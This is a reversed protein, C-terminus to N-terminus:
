KKEAEAAPEPKVVDPKYKLLINFQSPLPKGDGLFSQYLAAMAGAEVLNIRGGSNKDEDDTGWNKMAVQVAENASHIRMVALASQQALEHSAGVDAVIAMNYANLAKSFKKQAEYAQALCFAVQARQYGPQREKYREEAVALVRDWSKTRVADWMAYLEFQRQLLPRTLARSDYAAAAKNLGELDGLRRMCEMEYLGALLHFNNPLAKTFKYEESVKAFIPKAEEYKRAQYLEVAQSYPKPEFLYVSQIDALKVQPANESAQPTTKYLISSANSNVIYVTVAPEDEYILMAPAQGATFTIQGGAAAQGHLMPSSFTLLAAAVFIQPLTKM